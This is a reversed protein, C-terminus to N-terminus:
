AVTGAVCLGEAITPENKFAGQANIDQPTSRAGTALLHSVFHRM